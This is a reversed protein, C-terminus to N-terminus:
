YKAKNRGRKEVAKLRDLVARGQESAGYSESFSEWFSDMLLPHSGGLTEKLVHLDVAKEEIRKTEKALGFDILVLANSANEVLVNSTTLDGHTIDVRHLAAIMTGLASAYMVVTSDALKDRLREGHIREM